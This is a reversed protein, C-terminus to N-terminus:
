GARQGGEEASWGFPHRGRSLVLPLQHVLPQVAPSSDQAVGAHRGQQAGDRDVLAQLSAQQGTGVALAQQGVYLVDGLQETAAATWTSVTWRLLPRSNGITNQGYM